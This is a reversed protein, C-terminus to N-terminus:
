VRWRPEGAEIPLARLIENLAELETAPQMWVYQKLLDPVVGKKGKKGAFVITVIAFRDGKARKEAIAYNVETRLYGEDVYNPTIFFVAACSDKFGQLIGRELETGATMADEDLWPDFGIAKLTVFFRRVLPKDAGKHSLFIKQQRELIYEEKYVSFRVCTREVGMGHEDPLVEIDPEIVAVGHAWDLGAILDPVNERLRDLHLRWVQGRRELVNVKNQQLRDQVIQMAQRREMRGAFTFQVRVGQCQEAPTNGFLQWGINGARAIMGTMTRIMSPDYLDYATVRMSTQEQEADVAERFLQRQTPDLYASHGHNSKILRIRSERELIGLHGRVDEVEMKLEAAIASDNIYSGSNGQLRDIVQLVGLRVQNAKM